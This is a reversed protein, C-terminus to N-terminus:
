LVSQRQINSGDWALNLDSKLSLDKLKVMKGRKKEGKREKM